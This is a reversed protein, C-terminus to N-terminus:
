DGYVEFSLRPTRVRLPYFRQLPNCAFEADAYYWKKGPMINPPLFFTRNLSMNGPSLEETIAAATPDYSFRVTTEQDVVHRTIVGVCVRNFKRFRWHVTMQKGARTSSPIVYSNEEDYEYPPTTDALMYALPAIVAFSFIGLVVLLVRLLPAHSM